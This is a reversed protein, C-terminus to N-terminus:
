ALVRKGEGEPIEIILRPVCIGSVSERLANVLAIGRENEVVFHSTGRALDMQHLYYPKVGNEILTRMLDTLVPLSDNVGKLLVSQSILLVGRKRLALLAKRASLSFESAHNAHLVITLAKGRDVISELLNLLEDTIKEPSIVPIRTHIRISKIHDIEVLADLAEALRRASLVLPDGGTLIVEWLEKHARFYEMALALDPKSLTEGKQGIMEKRFCFRCYVECLQTIKLLARDEYRHVVGPAPSFRRDGIPDDLESPLINAEEKSPVFQRVLADYDGGKSDAMQAQMTPSVKIQFERAVTEIESSETLLNESYLDELSTWYRSM